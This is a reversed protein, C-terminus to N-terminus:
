VNLNIRVTIDNYDKDGGNVLDEFGFINDGLLRVHDAKDSNAGLFPFYVQPDNSSNSELLADPNSNVIMFPAFLSGGNFTGTFNATAQNNVTLDIGAVRGAVAAQVYGADGPRYDIIDDGNTDIGGKDDAIEYFGIFNNFAAERNLTFDAKVSTNVQRLDILENQRKGQLSTGLPIEEDTAKVKVKLDNFDGNQASPDKWALSFEGDDVSEVKFNTTSPFVVNSLSTKDSLVTDTTSNSVLYFRLNANSEFALKRSLDTDFGNPVKALASFIVQSRNLAAESYGVSDPAIGNIRGQADDVTFVGLENVLQSRHETLEVSIKAQSSSNQGKLAFVDFAIKNLESTTVSNTLAKNSNNSITVTANINSLGLNYNPADVLTLTLSEDGEDFLNDDVPTIAIDVFSQNTDLTATGTLNPSYDIGNTATGSIGYTVQLPLSIDGARSIRFIGVDGSEAASADIAAISVTPITDDRYVFIDRSNNTDGAVLNNAYTEFAIYQGDTSVVPNYSFDNGQNQQSDVSVRKITGTQINYVFIDGTNNTGGAVLNSASSGFTVYRGDASLAPSFSDNNGQNSQSDVSIRRTTGTQTDYIFIDSFNNTDDAVLNSAYSEFAVYRGDASIVPNYSFDNGQNAQSSVSIRRTTDTQTDYVFVDRTNNTDDAVLNSAFSDFVVYRGDASLAPSFSAGNGQNAQSSVSVRRTTDTQTDYVFIDNFNNTDDAVLNNAYSEFAVYRGDTSIIPSSSGRNGQNAQSSVSVRETSGTLTDYVFIDSFNNTDNQVLNSAYSEFAVYRGSASISPSGNAPNNGEIGNLGVSVGRTTGTQTDYVFIDSFNNTDSAVLNSADSRFAIYRGDASIDPSFSNNNGQNGGLGVSVRNANLLGTYAEQTAVSFVLSTTMRGTTVELKWHGGLAPNGTPTKSAAIQAGTKQRLKTIFEAGIDTAAVNCGYLLLSPTSDHSQEEKPFWRALLSAYFELTELNLCSNGLYLCGPSGHSVIHVTTLDARELVTTIQEVGDWEPHLLIVQADSEVGSMLTQYDAVSTDIFVLTKSTVSSPQNQQTTIGFRNHVDLKQIETPQM